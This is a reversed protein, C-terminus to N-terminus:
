DMNVGKLFNYIITKKVEEVKENGLKKNYFTTLNSSENKNEMSYKSNHSVVEDKHSSLYEGVVQPNVGSIARVLQNTIAIRPSDIDGTALTDNYLKIAELTRDLKVQSCGDARTKWLEENTMLDPNKPQHIKGSNFKVSSSQNTLQEKLQLNEAELESVKQRLTQLEELQKQQDLVKAKLDNVQQILNEKDIEVKGKELNDIAKREQNAQRILRVAEPIELQLMPFDGNLEVYYRDYHCSNSLNMLKKTNDSERVHGLMLGAFYPQSVNRPCDREILLRIFTARLDSPSALENKSSEDVSNIFNFVNTCLRRIKKGINSHIQENIKEIPTGQSELRKAFQRIAIGMESQRFKRFAYLFYDANCLLGLPYEVVEESEYNRKKVQGNFHVAYGDRLLPKESEAVKELNLETFNAHFLIEIPRRGSAAILGLALEADNNSQLLEELTIFFRQVDIPNRNLFDDVKRQDAAKNIGKWNVYALGTFHMYLHTLKGELEIANKFVVLESQPLAKILKTYPALKNAFSKPKIGCTEVNGFNKLCYEEIQAPTQMARIEQIFTQTDIKTAM